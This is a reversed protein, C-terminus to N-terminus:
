KMKKIFRSIESALIALLIVNKGSARGDTKATTRADETSQHATEITLISTPAQNSPVQWDLIAIGATIRVDREGIAKLVNDM